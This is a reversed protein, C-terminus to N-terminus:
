LEKPSRIPLPIALDYTHVEGAKWSASFKRLPSLVMKNVGTLLTGWVVKEVVRPIKLGALDKGKIYTFYSGVAAGKQMEKSILTFSYWEHTTAKKKEGGM